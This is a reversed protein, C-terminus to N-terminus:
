CSMVHGYCSMVHSSAPLQQQERHRDAHAHQYERAQAVRQLLVLLVGHEVGQGLDATDHTVHTVHTM